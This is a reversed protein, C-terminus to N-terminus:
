KRKGREFLAVGLLAELNAITYSVVSQARDLQRAAASFSGTEAVAILARLQELSPSRDSTRDM